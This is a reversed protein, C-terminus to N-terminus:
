NQCILIALRHLLDIKLNTLLNRSVRDSPLFALYADALNLRLLVDLINVLTDDITLGFMQSLVSRKDTSLPGLALTKRRAEVCNGREIHLKATFCGM